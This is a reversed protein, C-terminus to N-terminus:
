TKVLVPSNNNSCSKETSNGGGDTSEIAVDEVGFAESFVDELGSGLLSVGSLPSADFEKSLM